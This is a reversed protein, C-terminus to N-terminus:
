LGRRGEWRKHMWGTAGWVTCGIGLIGILLGILKNKHEGKIRDEYLVVHGHLTDMGWIDARNKKDVVGPVIWVTLSDKEQLAMQVEIFNPYNDLYMFILQSSDLRFILDETSPTFTKVEIVKGHIPVLNEKSPIRASRLSFFVVSSIFLGMFFFFQFPWKKVFLISFITAITSLILKIIFGWTM